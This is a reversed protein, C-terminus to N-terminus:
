LVDVMHDLTLLPLSIDRPSVQSRDFEARMREANVGTVTVFVRLGRVLLLRLLARLIDGLVGDDLVHAEDLNVLLALPGRASAAADGDGSDVCNAFIYEVADLLSLNLDRLGDCVRQGAGDARHKVFEGLLAAAVQAESAHASIASFDIRLNRDTFSARTLARAVGADEPPVLTAAAAEVEALSDGPAAASRALHFVADRAFRTKGIGPMGTCVPVSASRKLTEWRSDIPCGLAALRLHELGCFLDLLEKCQAERNIFRFHSGASTWMLREPAEELALSHRRTQRPAGAESLVEQLRASRNVVPAQSGLVQLRLRQVEELLAAVDVAAADLPDANM